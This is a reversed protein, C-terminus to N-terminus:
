TLLTQVTVPTLGRTALGDLIAPLAQSRATTASTCRSSAGASSEPWRARSSAAVRRSRPLGVPRRRLRRRHPLRRAGRGGAGAPDVPEDAVPPRLPRQQRLGAGPRRPGQRVGARRRDGSPAALDPHTYTHNALGHGAPSSAAASRRTPRWGTASRSSPSTRARRRPRAAAASRRAGSRRKRPLDPRGAAQDTVRERDRHGAGPQAPRTPSAASPASTAAITHRRGLHADDAGAPAAPRRKAGAGRARRGRMGGSCSRRWSRAGARTEGVSCEDGM